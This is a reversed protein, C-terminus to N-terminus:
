TFLESLSSIEQMKSSHSARSILPWQRWSEIEGTRPGKLLYLSGVGALAGAMLDRACDGVLMSRSLNLRFEPVMKHIMGPRPKRLSRRVLGSALSSNDISPAKLIRDLFLGEKALLDQLRYTVEEYQAWTIQGRGIGSQNTFVLLRLNRERAKRLAPIVDPRLRVQGPDSVFDIDEMLVGDRDLFLAANELPGEALLSSKLAEAKEMWTRLGLLASRLDQEQIQYDILGADLNSPSILAIQAGTHHNLRWLQDVTQNEVFILDRESYKSLDSMSEASRKEFFLVDPVMNLHNEAIEGTCVVRGGDLLVGILAGLISNQQSAQSLLEDLNSFNESM